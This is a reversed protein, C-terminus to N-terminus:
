VWFSQHKLRFFVAGGAPDIPMAVRNTVTSKVVVTSAPPTFGSTRISVFINQARSAAPLWVLLAIVFPFLKNRNM